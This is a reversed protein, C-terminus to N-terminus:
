CCVVVVLAALTVAAVGTSFPPMVIPALAVRLGIYQVVAITKGRWTSRLPEALWPLLWGAGRVCVADPRVDVGVRRGQRAAVCSDSLVLILAADTEMDFRAGFASEMGSRRALWGDVGDLVAVLTVVGITPWLLQASRREGILGAVLAMTM